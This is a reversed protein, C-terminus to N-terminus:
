KFVEIMGKVSGTIFDVTSANLLINIQRIKVLDKEVTEKYEKLISNYENRTTDNGDNFKLRECTNEIRINLRDVEEMLEFVYKTLNKRLARMVSEIHYISMVKVDEYKEFSLLSNIYLGDQNDCPDKSEYRFGLDETENNWDDELSDFGDFEEDTAIFEDLQSTDIESDEGDEIGADIYKDLDKFTEVDLNLYDQCGELQGKRFIGPDGSETDDIMLIKWGKENIRKIGINNWFVKLAEDKTMIAASEINDTTKYGEREEDIAVFTKIRKDAIVYKKENMIKEMRLIHNQNIKMQEAYDRNSVIEWDAKGLKSLINAAEKYAFAAPRYLDCSVCLKHRLKTKGICRGVKWNVLYNIEGHRNNSCRHKEAM